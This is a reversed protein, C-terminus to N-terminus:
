VVGRVSSRMGSEIGNAVENVIKDYGREFGAGRLIKAAEDPNNLQVVRQFVNDTDQVPAGWMSATFSRWPGAIAEYTLERDTYNPYMALRQDKLFETFEIEADPDNRFEAAKAAIESDSWSGFVPGLWRRLLSRVTDEQQRTQDPEIQNAALFGELEPKLPKDAYFPDTLYKIQQEYEAQSWEGMLLQGAIFEVLRPDANNMGAARLDNESAIIYNDLQQDAEAPDGHKLSMWERQAATHEQWWKTSQIESATLPRGEIISMALLTQYDDDLLWPQTAAEAELTSAWSDFPNKATNQIDDSSGFDVTDAWLADSTSIERKYVIPQDPGFFSQVDEESPVVWRMYVPDNETGPVVYVIYARKTTTNYWLEAGGAIGFRPDSREATGKLAPADSSVTQDGYKEYAAQTLPGWIGDVVLNAGAANLKRQLDKIEAKSSTRSVMTVAQRNRHPM